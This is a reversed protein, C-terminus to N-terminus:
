RASGAQEYDRIQSLSVAYMDAKEAYARYWAV